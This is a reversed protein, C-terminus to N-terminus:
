GPPPRGTPEPFLSKSVPHCHILFWSRFFVFGFTGGEPKNKLPDSLLDGPTVPLRPMTQEPFEGTLSELFAVIDAVQAEELKKELQTKAM